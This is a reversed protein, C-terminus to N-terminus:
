DTTEDLEEAELGVVRRALRFGFAREQLTV